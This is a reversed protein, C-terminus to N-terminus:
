TSIAIWKIWHQCPPPPRQPPGPGGMLMAGGHGGGGEGYCGFYISPPDVPKEIAWTVYYKIQVETYYYM